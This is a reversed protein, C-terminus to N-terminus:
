KGNQPVTGPQSNRPQTTHQSSIWHRHCHNGSADCQYTWCGDSDCKTAAFVPARIGLLAVLAFATLLALRM